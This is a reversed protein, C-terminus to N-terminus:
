HFEDLGNCKGKRYNTLLLIECGRKHSITRVFIYFTLSCVASNCFIGLPSEGFNGSVDRGNLLFVFRRVTTRRKRGRNQVFEKNVSKFAKVLIKSEVSQLNKWRVM